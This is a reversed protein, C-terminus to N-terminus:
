WSSSPRWCQEPVRCARPAVLFGGPFGPSYYLCSDFLGGVHLRPREGIRAVCGVGEGGDQSRQACSHGRRYLQRRGGSALVFLAFRMMPKLILRLGFIVPTSPIKTYGMVELIAVAAM